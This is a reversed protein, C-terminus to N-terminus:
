RPLMTEDQERYNKRRRERASIARTVNGSRRMMAWQVNLFKDAANRSTAPGPAAQYRREAAEDPARM